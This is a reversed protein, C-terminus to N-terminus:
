TAMKSFPRQSFPGKSFSLRRSRDTASRTGLSPWGRETPMRGPSMGMAVWVRAFFGSRNSARALRTPLVGCRRPIKPGPALERATSAGPVQTTVFANLVTAYSDGTPNAIAAAGATEIRSVLAPIPIALLEPMQVISLVVNATIDSRHGSGKPSVELVNEGSNLDGAGHFRNKGGINGNDIVIEGIVSKAPVGQFSAEAAGDGSATVTKTLTTVRNTAAGPDVLILRFTVKAGTGNARVTGAPMGEGAAIGAKRDPDVIKFLVTASGRVEPATAILGDETDGLSLFRCGIPLLALTALVLFISLRLPTKTM